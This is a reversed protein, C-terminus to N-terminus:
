PRSDRRLRRRGQIEEVIMEAITWVIAVCSALAISLWFNIGMVILVSAFCAPIIRSWRLRARLWNRDVLAIKVGTVETPPTPPEVVGM